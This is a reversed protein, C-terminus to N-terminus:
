RHQATESQDKGQIRQFKPLPKWGAIIRACTRAAVVYSRGM